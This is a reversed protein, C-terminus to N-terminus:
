VLTVSEGKVAIEEEILKITTEIRVIDEYPLNMEKAEEFYDCHLMVNIQLWIGREKVKLANQLVRDKLKQHAEAHWSITIGDIYEAIKDIDKEPWTGNTTLGVNYGEHDKIYKVIDWFQPNVTPEGGTFDINVHQRNKKHSDYKDTYSQIFNFTDKLLRSQDYILFSDKIKQCKM